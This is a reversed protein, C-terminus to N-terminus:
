EAEYVLSWRIVDNTAWTFPATATVGGYNVAAGSVSLAAPTLATTNFTHLGAVNNTGSDLYSAPGTSNTGAKGTIPLSISLANAAAKVTTSGFTFTGCTIVTKGIQVYKTDTFTGNGVAWTGGSFTPTYSIWNNALAANAWIATGGGQATLVQGATASGAPSAGIGLKAEIAEVADNIDAHQLSHSPSNLSDTASPNNFNDLSTPYNSAM